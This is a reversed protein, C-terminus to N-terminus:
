LEASYGHRSKELSRPTIVLESANVKTTITVPAAQLVGDVMRQAITQRLRSAPMHDGDVTPMRCSPMQTRATQFPERRRVADAFQVVDRERIRGNRGTGAIERWEVGLERATRRALPSAAIRESRRPEREPLRSPVNLDIATADKSVVRDTSTAVSTPPQEGDALLYGIVQGVRVIDGTRPADDPICLIGSDFSEVEQIAKEGELEFLFDGKKVLEGPSKLWGAFTGDDMSWDLRPVTIEIM